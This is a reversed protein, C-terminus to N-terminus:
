NLIEIVEGDVPAPTPVIGFLRELLKKEKKIARYARCKSEFIGRDKEITVYADRGRGGVTAKASYSSHQGYFNTFHKRAWNRAHKLDTFNSYNASQTDGRLFQTVSPHGPIDANPMNWNFRPYDKSVVNTVFELRRSVILRLPSDHVEIRALGEIFPTLFQKIENASLTQVIRSAVEDCYEGIKRFFRFEEILSPVDNRSHALWNNYIDRKFAKTVLVLNSIMLNQLICFRNPLELILALPNLSEWGFCNVIIVFDLKDVTAGNAVLQSLTSLVKRAMPLSKLSIVFKIAANVVELHSRSHQEGTWRSIVTEFKSKILPTLCDSGDTFENLLSKFGGLAGSNNLLASFEYKAPYFVLGFCHYVEQLSPGANGTNGEYDKTIAEGWWETDGEADFDVDDLLMLDEFKFGINRGCEFINGNEDLWPGISQDSDILEWDMDEYGNGYGGCGGYHANRTFQVIYIRIKNGPALFSNATKLNEYITRDYGKLSVAGKSVSQITYEHELLIGTSTADDSNTWSKLSNALRIIQSSFDRACPVSGMTDWVLSYILVFRYGQTVEELCHEVDAYHAAYYTNFSSLGENTGFDFRHELGAHRTVLNGGEYESPLQVVLTGFMRQEKETDRHLAFHGGKEYLLAKYLIARTNGECGLAKAVKNVLIQVCKNWTPNKFSIKQSDIEWAKRINEDTVTDMGKGFPAANAVSKIIAANNTDVPLHITGVDEITLGPLISLEDSKGGCSFDGSREISSLNIRIGNLAEDGTTM